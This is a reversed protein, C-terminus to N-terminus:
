GKVEQPPEPREIDTVQYELQEILRSNHAGDENGHHGPTHADFCLICVTRIFENLCLRNSVRLKDGQQLHRLLVPHQCFQQHDHVIDRLWWLVRSLNFLLKVLLSM